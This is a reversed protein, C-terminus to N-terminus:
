KTAKANPKPPPAAAGLSLADVEIRGGSAAVLGARGHTVSKPVKAALKKLDITASVNDGQISLTVRHPAPGATLAVPPALEKAQADGDVFVLTAKPTPDGSVLLVVGAYSDKGATGRVLLGGGRGTARIRAVLTQNSGTAGAVIADFGTSKPGAALVLKDEDATAALPDGYLKELKTAGLMWSEAARPVLRGGEIDALRPPKGNLTVASVKGDTLTFAFAETVTKMPPISKAAPQTQLSTRVFSTVLGDTMEIKTFPGWQNPSESNNAIVALALAYATLPENQGRVSRILGLSLARGSDLLLLRVAHAVYLEASAGPAGNWSVGEPAFVSEPLDRALYADAGENTARAAARAAANKLAPSKAFAVRTATWAMAYAVEARERDIPVPAVDEAWLQSTSPAGEAPGLKVRATAIRSRASLGKASSKSLFWVSAADAAKPLGRILEAMAALRAESAGGGDELLAGHKEFLTKQAAGLGFATSLEHRPILGRALDSATLLTQARVPVLASSIPKGMQLSLSSAAIHELYAKASDKLADDRFGAKADHGDVPPAGANAITVSVFRHIRVIEQASQDARLADRGSENQPMGGLAKTARALLARVLAPALDSRAANSGPGVLIEKALKEHKEDFAVATFGATLPAAAEEMSLDPRAVLARIKAANAVDGGQVFSRVQEKESDTLAATAPLSVTLSVLLTTRALSAMFPM